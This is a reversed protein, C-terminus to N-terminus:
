RGYKKRLRDLEAQEDMSLTGAPAPQARATPAEPVEYFPAIESVKPNAKMTKLNHQHLDYQRRALRDTVALFSKLEPITMDEIEGSEAKILLKGEFDSVQGQGKLQKRAALSFQGLSRIVNRTNVIQEENDKGGVGLMQAVQGVKQRITATPGVNVMGKDIAMRARGVTDLTEIAGLAGTRSEAMMPGIEKALSDELKVNVLPQNPKKIGKLIDETGVDVGHQTKMQEAIHSAAQSTQESEHLAAFLRQAENTVSTLKEGAAHQRATEQQADRSVNLSTQAEHLQLTRADMQQAVQQVAAAKSLNAPDKALALKAQLYQLHLAQAKTEGVLVHLNDQETQPKTGAALHTAQELTQQRLQKVQTIEAEIQPISQKARDLYNQLEPQSQRRDTRLGQAKTLGYNKVDRDYQGKEETIQALIPTLEEQAASAQLGLTILPRLESKIGALRELNDQNAALQAQKQPDFERQYAVRQGEGSKSLAFGAAPDSSGGSLVSLQTNGEQLLEREFEERSRKQTSAGMRNITATAAQSEASGPAYRLQEYFPQTNAIFAAPDKVPEGGVREMYKNYLAPAAMPNEQIATLAAQRLNDIELNKGQQDLGQQQLALHQQGQVMQLGLMMSRTPDYFDTLSKVDPM